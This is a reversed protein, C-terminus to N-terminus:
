SNAQTVITHNGFELAEKCWWVGVREPQSVYSWSKKWFVPYLWQQMGGHWHNKRWGGHLRFLFILALLIKVLCRDTGWPELPYHTLTINSSLIEGHVINRLLIGHLFSELLVSLDSEELKSKGVMHAHHTTITLKPLTPPKETVKQLWM